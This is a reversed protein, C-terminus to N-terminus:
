ALEILKEIYESRTKGEQDALRGLKIWDKVTFALNRRIKKNGTVPRGSGPRKGGHNYESKNEM